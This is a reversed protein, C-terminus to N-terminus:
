EAEQLAITESFFCVWSGEPVRRHEDGLGKGALEIPVNVELVTHESCPAGANAELGGKEPTPVDGGGPGHRGHGVQRQSKTFQRLSHYLESRKKSHPQKALFVSGTARQIDDTNM